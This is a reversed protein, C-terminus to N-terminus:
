FLEADVRNHTAPVLLIGQRRTALSIGVEVHIRKALLNARNYTASGGTCSQDRSYIRCGITRGQSATCRSWRYLFELGFEPQGRISTESRTGFRGYSLELAIM